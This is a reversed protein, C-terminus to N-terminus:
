LLGAISSLHCKECLFERMYSSSIKMSKPTVHKMCVHVTDYVYQRMGYPDIARSLIYSCTQDM